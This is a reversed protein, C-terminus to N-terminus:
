LGISTALGSLVILPGAVDVQQRRDPLRRAHVLEVEDVAVHDWRELRERGPVAELVQRIRREDDASARALFVVDFGRGDFVAAFQMGVPGTELTTLQVVLDHQRRERPVAGSRVLVLAVIATSGDWDGTLALEAQASAAGLLPQVPYRRSLDQHLGLVSWGHEVQFARFQRLRRDRVRRRSANTLPPRSIARWVDDWWQSLLSVDGAHM